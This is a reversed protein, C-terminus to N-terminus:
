TGTPMFCVTKGGTMLSSFLAALAREQYPEPSFKERWHREYFIPDAITLRKWGAQLQAELEPTYGASPVQIEGGMLPFSNYTIRPKASDSEVIRYQFERSVGQLEATHSIRCGSGDSLKELKGRFVGTNAWPLVIKNLFRDVAESLGQRSIDSGLGGSPVLLKSDELRSDDGREADNKILINSM